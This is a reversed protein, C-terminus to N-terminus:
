QKTKRFNRTYDDASFFLTNNSELLLGGKAFCLFEGKYDTEIWTSLYLNGQTDLRKWKGSIKIIHNNNKLVQIFTKNVYFKFFFNENKKSLSNYTGLIEQDSNPYHACSCFLYVLLFYKIKM